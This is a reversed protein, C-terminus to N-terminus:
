YVKPILKWPVRKMYRRYAEGYQKILHEEEEKLGKPTLPILIASFLLAM